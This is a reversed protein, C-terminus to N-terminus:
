KNETLEFNGYMRRKGVVLIYCGTGIDLAPSLASAYIDM